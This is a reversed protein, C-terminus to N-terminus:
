LYDDLVVIALGEAKLRRLGTDNTLFAQAGEERTTAILLADPARIGYRARLRAAEKAALYGPAALVTNPLSLVFREFAAVGEPAADAFPKVLAETVAITSLVGEPTGASIEAFAVETLASYPATDGLHYILISSDLGIRKFKRLEAALRAAKVAM